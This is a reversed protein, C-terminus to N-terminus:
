EKMKYVKVWDIEMASPLGDDNAKEKLSSNFMLFMPNEPLGQTQVKFVLDNIKWTMKGPLWELTYIFYDKTFKSGSTKSISKSHGKESSNKWYNGSFLRNKDFKFVDVHPLIQDSLLSFSQTVGSGAIKVKAEILGYKQSFLNASSIMDSTFDFEKEYFGRMADWVLAKAPERKTVIRLKKDFFELNKGETFAHRDDAMVYNKHLQKDGYLYRTMWKKTDLINTEFTDNFTLEWKEVYKFPYNKKTKYFWTIKDSKTLLQYEQVKKFEDSSEYKEKPSLAMYNKVKQFEESNVTKELDNLKKLEDSDKVRLYERYDASKEFKLFNNILASKSADQYEKEKIGPESNKFEKSPISAKEKIFKDSRLYEGLEKYRKLEPSKETVEYERLKDSNLVKFYTVIPKSKKLRLYEQEKRFEETRTFKRAKIEKIKMHFEPSNIEKQLDEYHTLDESKEFTKFAEYDNRLQNWKQELKATEPFMGLLFKISAM